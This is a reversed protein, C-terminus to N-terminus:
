LLKKAEAELADALNIFGALRAANAAIILQTLESM